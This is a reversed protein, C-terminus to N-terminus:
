KGNGTPTKNLTEPLQWRLMPRSDKLQYHGSSGDLKYLAIEYLHPVLPVVMQWRSNARGNFALQNFSIKQIVRGNADLLHIQYRGQQYSKEYPQDLVQYDTVELSDANNAISIVLSSTDSTSGACGMLFLFCVVLIENKHHRWGM